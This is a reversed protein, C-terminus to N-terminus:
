RVIIKAAEKSSGNNSVNVVYVGHNFGSTNIDLQTQGAPIKSNLMIQGSASVVQVMAGEGISSDLSVTVNEGRKPNRPSIKSTPAATVFSVTNNADIRYVIQYEKDDGDKVPITAFRNYGLKFLYLDSYRVIYESPIDFTMLVKGSDDYVDFGTLEYRTGWAKYAIEGNGNKKEEQFSRPEYKTVVYNFEESFLGRSLYLQHDDAYNMYTVDVPMTWSTITVEEPDLWKGYYGMDGSGRYNQECYHWVGNIERYYWMPYKNGYNDPEYYESALVESGDPLKAIEYNKGNLAYLYSQVREISLGTTEGNINIIDYGTYYESGYSEANQYCYERVEVTYTSTYETMPVTNFDKYLQFNEDYITFHIPEHSLDDYDEFYVFSKGDKSWEAPILGPWSGFVTTEPTIACVSMCSILVSVASLLLKNRM